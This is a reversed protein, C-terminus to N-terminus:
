DEKANIFGEIANNINPNMAWVIPIDKEITTKIFNYDHEELSLINTKKTDEFAVAIRHMMRFHDLGKPMDDIKKSSLLTSIIQLINEEIETGDPMQAKWNVVPINRM